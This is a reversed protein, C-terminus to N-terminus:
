RQYWEMCEKVLEVDKVQKKKFHITAELILCIVESVYGQYLYNITANTVIHYMIM